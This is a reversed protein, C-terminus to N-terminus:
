QGAAKAIRNARKNALDDLVSETAPSPLSSLERLVMTLQRALAAVERTEAGPVRRALDDRVAELSARLDGGAVVEPLTRVVLAPKKM